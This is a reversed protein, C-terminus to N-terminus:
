SHQLAPVSRADARVDLLRELEAAAVDQGDAEVLRRVRLGGHPGGNLPTVPQMRHGRTCIEVPMKQHSVAGEEESPLPEPRSRKVARPARGAPTRADRSAAVHVRTVARASMDPSRM